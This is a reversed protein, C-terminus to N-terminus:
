WLVSPPSQAGGVQLLGAAYQPPGQAPLTTEERGALPNNVDRRLQGSPDPEEVGAVVALGVREVRVGDRHDRQASGAQALDSGIPLELGQSHQGVAAVLQGVTPHLGHVSELPQQRFRNGSLPFPVQGRQLGLRDQARDPGAVQGPLGTASRFRNAEQVSVAGSSADEPSCM